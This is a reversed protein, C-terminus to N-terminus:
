RPVVFVGWTYGGMIYTGTLSPTSPTSIDIIQLGAYNDAVYAYDGVVHVGRAIGSTNYTGTLSPASSTSIDIIQLDYFDAVYAYDGVVYVGYAYGPTNIHGVLSVNLSDAFLVNNIFVLILIIMMRKM